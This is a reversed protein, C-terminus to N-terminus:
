VHESSAKAVTGQPTQDDRAHLAVRDFVVEADAGITGERAPRRPRDRRGGEWKGMGIYFFFDGM